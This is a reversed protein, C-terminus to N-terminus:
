YFTCLTRHLQLVSNSIRLPSVTATPTVTQPHSILFIGDIIISSRGKAYNLNQATLSLSHLVTYEYQFTNSGNRHILLYIVRSYTVSAHSDFDYAVFYLQGRALWLPIIPLSIWKNRVV